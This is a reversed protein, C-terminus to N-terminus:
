VWYEEKELVPNHAHFLKQINNLDPLENGEPWHPLREEIQHHKEKGEERVEEARSLPPVSSVINTMSNVGSDAAITSTTTSRRSPVFATHSAPRAPIPDAIRHVPHRPLSYAHFSTDGELSMDSATSQRSSFTISVNSRMRSRSPPGDRHLHSSSSSSHSYAYSRLPTQRPSIDPESFGSSTESGHHSDEGTVPIGSPDLEYHIVQTQPLPPSAPWPSQHRPHLANPSWKKKIRKQQTLCFVIVIAILVILFLIIGIIPILTYVPFGSDTIPGPAQSVAPAETSTIPPNTTALTLNNHPPSVTLTVEMEGPQFEEALVLVTFSEDVTLNDLPDPYDWVYVIWGLQLEDYRFNSIGETARKTTGGSFSVHKELHGFTPPSFIKINPPRNIDRQLEDLIFLDPPLTQVLQNPGQNNFMISKTGGTSGLAKIIVTMEVQLRKHSNTVSLLFNDRHQQAGAFPVYRVLLDDIDEQTFQEGEHAIVIRGYSPQVQVTFITQSRLKNTLTDLHEKTIETGQIANQFYTIPRSHLLSLTHEEVILRLEHSDETGLSGDHFSFSLIGTGVQFPELIIHGRDIDEQTFTSNVDLATRNLIVRTNNPLSIVLFIIHSPVTDGDSVHLYEASLTSTFNEVLTVGQARTLSPIQDNISSISISLTEQYWSGLLVGDDQLVTVNLLVQDLLSESDDHRYCLSGETALDSQTFSSAENGHLTLSGHTPPALVSYVISLSTINTSSDLGRWMRYRLNRGDLVSQNLCRRGGESVVLKQSGALHSHTSPPQPYSISIVLPLNNRSSAPLSEASVFITENEEWYETESHVYTVLGAHLDGSSFRSTLVSSNEFYGLRPHSIIQYYIERQSIGDDATTNCDLNLTTLTVTGLFDVQVSRWADSDCDLSLKKAIVTIIGSEMHFGDTVNYAVEGRSGGKHVFEVINAQIELQTFSYIPERTSDNAYTFHGDLGSVLVTINLVDLPVDGDSVDLVEQGVVVSSTAWLTLSTENNRIVPRQDNVPIIDIYLTHVSSKRNFGAPDHAEYEFRFADLISENGSHIYIISNKEMSETTFSDVIRRTVADVIKGHESVPGDLLSITGGVRRLYPHTVSIEDSTIPMSFGETVVLRDLNLLVVRPLIIITLNYIVAQHNTGDTLNFRLVEPELDPSSLHRYWVSPRDTELDFKTFNETHNIHLQFRQKELRGYTLREVLQCVIQDYYKNNDEGNNINNDEIRIVTHDIPVRELEMVLLPQTIYAVPPDDDIETIAIDLFLKKSGNERIPVTINFDFRDMFNNTDDHAYVLQSTNIRAQTFSDGVVLERGDLTLVGHQTTNLLTIEFNTDSLSDDNDAFYRLHQYTIRKRSGERLVFPLVPYTKFNVVVIHFSLRTNVENTGDSVTTILYDVGDTPDKNKYYLRNERIDRETWNLVPDVDPGPDSDLFLYGHFPLFDPISWMLDEDDSGADFDHARLLDTTILASGGEVVNLDEGGNEVEPFHDNLAEIKIRMMFNVPELMKGQAIVRAEFMDELFESGDHHYHVMGRTLESLTFHSAAISSSTSFNITINGRTPKKIIIITIDTSPPSQINFDSPSFNYDEGELVNIVEPTVMLSVPHIHITLSQPFLCSSNSCVNLDLTDLISTSNIHHQYLVLRNRLEAYTFESISRTLGGSFIQLQGHQPGSLVHFVLSEKLDERSSTVDLHSLTLHELSGQTVVLSTKIYALPVLVPLICIDVRYSVPVSHGYSFTFELSDESERISDEKLVYSIKNMDRLSFLSTPEKM